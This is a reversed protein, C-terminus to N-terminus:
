KRFKMSAYFESIDPRSTCHRAGCATCRARLAIDPIPLDAPLASVDISAHHHCTVCHIEVLRYGAYLHQGITLPEIM